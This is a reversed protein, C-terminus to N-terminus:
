PGALDEPTLDYAKGFGGNLSAGTPEFVVFAFDAFDAYLASKPHSALWHARIRAHEPAERAVFRAGLHLTLRPHTLPDGKPGPEGVMLSALPSARLARTHASLASVLTLPLGEPTTGVAVRTVVPAGTDPDLTGLAGHRAEALLRRALARAEDDTPRIPSAEQM